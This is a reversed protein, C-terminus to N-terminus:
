TGSLGQRRMFARMEGEGLDANITIAATTETTPPVPENPGLDVVYRWPAEGRDRAGASSLAAEEWVVVGLHKSPFRAPFADPTAPVGMVQNTQRAKTLGELRDAITRLQRATYTTMTAEELPIRPHHTTRFNHAGQVVTGTPMPQCICPVTDVAAGM